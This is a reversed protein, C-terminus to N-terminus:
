ERGGFFSLRLSVMVPSVCPTPPVAPPLLSAFVAAEGGLWPSGSNGSQSPPFQTLSSTRERKVPPCYNGDERDSDVSFSSSSFFFWAAEVKVVSAPSVNSFCGWRRWRRPQLRRSVESILVCTLAILSPWVAQHSKVEAVLPDRFAAGLTHPKPETARTVSNQGLAQFDGTFRRGGGWWAERWPSRVAPFTGPVSWNGLKELPYQESARYESDVRQKLFFFFTDCGCKLFLIIKVPRPKEKKFPTYRELLFYSHTITISQAM